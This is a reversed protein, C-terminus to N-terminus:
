ASEWAIVLRSNATATLAGGSNQFGQLSVTDGASLRFRGTASAIVEDSGATGSFVAQGWTVSSNVKVGAAYSATGSTLAAGVQACIYHVGAQPATWAPGALASYNDLAIVATSVASGSPWTGSPLDGAVPVHSARLMPPNELFLLADRVNANLWAEDVFSPPVPFSANAPIGLSSAAGTGAWRLSLRPFNTGSGDLALGTGTTFAQLQVFDSGSSGPSGTRLLQVLDAAFVGPNVGSATVHLQGQSTALGGSTNVGLGAGFATEGGGAYQFPVYGEALYWGPAQCYYNQPSTGLPSHGQWPDSQETDLVVSHFAGSAIVPTGTCYASFSPRNSLFSVGNSQDARLESVLVPDNVWTTPAPM